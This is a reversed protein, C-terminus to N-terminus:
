MQFLDRKARGAVEWEHVVEREKAYLNMHYLGNLHCVHEQMENFNFGWGQM